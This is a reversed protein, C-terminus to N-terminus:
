PNEGRERRIEALITAASEDGRYLKELGDLIENAEEPKGEARLGRARELSKRVGTWRREDAPPDKELEERARRVWRKESPVNQFAAILATWTERAAQADGRQRQRLGQQFFWHAESLRGVRQEDLYDLWRRSYEEIEAKHPNNPDKALLAELKEHGKDWDEPSDSEMLARGQQYTKEPDNPWFTWVLIGVCIVFLTVLVAPHNFFRRTPGGHNQRDLEQRMLRSMLTAPGEGRDRVEPEAPALPLTEGMRTSERPLEHDTQQARRDLKRRITELRRGLIGADPPRKEPAKELLNCILADFDAPIEPVVTRPEDFQAYRHKHLLDLVNSGAFPTRGTLLTYLVCGLSYLDSRKTASKGEAQEPSLYEATGVVAGTRTLHKAAFVHAVGFDTLKVQGSPMLILNSPKVDRHIVGRDHAHKLAASVQIAMDLVQPWGLRPQENLVDACDRGEVYEMVFYLFGEHTGSEFFHVINPHDLQRLVDIERQFRQVAGPHTTLEGALVKVAACRKSGDEHALFVCGMGGRGIERDLIWNGLKAGQM